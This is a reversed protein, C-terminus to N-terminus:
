EGRVFTHMMRTARSGYRIAHAPTVISVAISPCRYMGLTTCTDPSHGDSDRGRICKDDYGIGIYACYLLNLERADLM